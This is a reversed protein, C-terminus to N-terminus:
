LHHSLGLAWLPENTSKGPTSTTRRSSSEPKPSQFAPRDVWGTQEHGKGLRVGQSGAGNSLNGSQRGLFLAPHAAGPLTKLSAEKRWPWTHLGERGKGGFSGRGPSATSGRLPCLVAPNPTLTISPRPGDCESGPAKPAPLATSKETPRSYGVHDSRSLGKYASFCKVSRPKRSPM